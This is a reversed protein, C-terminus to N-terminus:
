LAIPLLIQHVRRSYVRRTSPQPLCAGHCPMRCAAHAIVVISQM